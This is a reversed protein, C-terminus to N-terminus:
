SRTRDAFATSSPRATCAPLPLCLGDYGPEIGTPLERCLTEYDLEHSMHTLITRRPKLRQSWKVAQDVSLHTPHPEHRLADIILTDLGTLQERSEAPISSVDTCFAVDGIRFGLVPLEGHMLRVPLINLGLLEFPQGPRLRRFSLRPAAFRHSLTSPDAFAYHFIQRINDEVLEECFLPIGIDPRRCFQAEDFPEGSKEAIRIAQQMMEREKRFGFIRLDDIGMVHDAHAHTFVAAQVMTANSALLQLRLEPSADIVFEGQPARILVGSRM